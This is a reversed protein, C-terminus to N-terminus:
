NGWGKVLELKISNVGALELYSRTKHSRAAAVVM